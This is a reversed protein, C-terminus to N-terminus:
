ARGVCSGSSGYKGRLAHSRLVEAAVVAVGYQREDVAERIGVNGATQMTDLVIAPDKEHDLDVLEFVLGNDAPLGALVVDPM